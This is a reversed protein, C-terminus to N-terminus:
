ATTTNLRPLFLKNLDIRHRKSHGHKAVLHLPTWHLLEKAKPNKIEVNMLILQVVKKSNISCSEKAWKPSGFAISYMGNCEQSKQEQYIEYDFCLGSFLYIVFISLASMQVIFSIM